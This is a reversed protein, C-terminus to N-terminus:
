RLTWEQHGNWPNLCIYLSVYEENSYKGARFIEQVGFFFFFNGTSQRNMVGRRWGRSVVSRKVIVVTKGKVSQWVTPIMFFTARESQCRESLLMCKLKRWTKEHSSLEHWRLASYCETTQICWWKNIRESVPPCRPQTIQTKVCEGPSASAWECEFVVTRCQREPHSVM